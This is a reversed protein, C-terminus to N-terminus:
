SEDGTRHRHDEGDEDGACRAAARRGAANGTVITAEFPFTVTEFFGRRM